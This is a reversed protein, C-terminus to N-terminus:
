TSSPSYSSWRHVGCKFDHFERPLNPSTSRRSLHNSLKLPPSFSRISSPPTHFYWTLASHPSDPEVLSPTPSRPPSFVQNSSPSPLQPLLPPSPVNINFSNAQNSDNQPALDRLYEAYAEDLLQRALRRGRRRFTKSDTPQPNPLPRDSV